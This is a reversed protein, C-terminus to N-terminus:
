RSTRALNIKKKVLVLLRSRGSPLKRPQVPPTPALGWLYLVFAILDSNKDKEPLTIEVVWIQDLINLKFVQNL